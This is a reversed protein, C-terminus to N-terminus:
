GGAPRLNSRPAIVYNGAYCEAFLIPDIQDHRPPAPYDRDSGFCGCAPAHNHDRPAPKELTLADTVPVRVSFQVYDSSHWRDCATDQMNEVYAGAKGILTAAALPASSKRLM